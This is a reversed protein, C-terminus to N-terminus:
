KGNNNNNDWQTLPTEGYYGYLTRLTSFLKDTDIDRPFVDYVDKKKYVRYLLGKIRERNTNYILQPSHEGFVSDIIWVSKILKDLVRNEKEM